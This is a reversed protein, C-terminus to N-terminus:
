LTACATDEAEIGLHVRHAVRCSVESPMGAYWQLLDIAHIAQNMLVGGGDVAITGRSGSYYRPDRHWKVSATALALRGFRGAALAGKIANANESFRGQFVAAVVVGAADAAELMRDARETTIELPKEVFLHKGARIVELAPELHAGAPTTICVVDVESLAAIEGATAAAAALGHRRAFDRARELNRSAVGVLHGGHLRAIAQAHFEAIMGLGVIAFGLSRQRGAPDRM